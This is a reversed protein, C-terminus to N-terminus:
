YPRVVGSGNVHLEISPSGLYVVDGSGNISAYLSQAVNVYASGSGNISVAAHQAQLDITNVNGSGEIDINVTSSEGALDINGSGMNDIEITNSVSLDLNLNGSGSNEISMDNTHSIHGTVNGSGENRLLNLASKNVFVQISSHSNVRNNKEVIYLTGNNITTSIYPLKNEPSIIRISYDQDEVLQINFSGEASLGTYNTDIARDVTITRGGNMYPTNKECSSLSVIAMLCAISIQTVKKM